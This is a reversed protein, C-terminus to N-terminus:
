TSRSQSEEMLAVSAVELLELVATHGSHISYIMDGSVQQEQKRKASEWVTAILRQPKSKGTTWRVASMDRGERRERGLNCM